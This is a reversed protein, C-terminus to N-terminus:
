IFFDDCFSHITCVNFKFFDTLDFKNSDNLFYNFICKTLNYYKEHAIKKKKM